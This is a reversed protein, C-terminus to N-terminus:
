NREPGSNMLLATLPISIVPAIILAYGVWVWFVLTAILLIAITGMSAYLGWTLMSKGREEAVFADIAGAGAVISVLYLILLEPTASRPNSGICFLLFFSTLLGAELLASGATKVHTHKATHMTHM